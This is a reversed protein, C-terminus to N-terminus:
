NPTIHLNGDLPVHSRYQGETLQVMNQQQYQERHTDYYQYFNQDVQYVQDTDPNYVRDQNLIFDTYKEMFIDERDQKDYWDKLQEERTSSLSSGGRSSGGWSASQIARCQEITSQSYDISSFIEQLVPADIEATDPPTYAGWLYDVVSYYGGIDRTGVTFSGLAPVGQSDFSVIMAKVNPGLASVDTNQDYQVIRTNTVTSFDRPMYETIYREPTTGAPLGSQIDNHLGNLFVVGRAPNSSDTAILGACGPLVLVQWNDPIRIQVKGAQTTDRLPGISSTRPAAAGQQGIGPPTIPAYSSLIARLTEEESAFRAAPAEYGALMAYPSDVFVTYVARKSTGQTTFSAVLEIMRGDTTERVSELSFDPYYRAAAGVLYNAVDEADMSRYDGSLFLPHIQVSTAGGDRPDAVVIADGVTVSWEAPKQVSFLNGTDSYPVLIVGGVSKPAVTSGDSQASCGALIILILVGTVLFLPSSSRSWM